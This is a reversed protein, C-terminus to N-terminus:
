QAQPQQTVEAAVSQLTKKSTPDLTLNRVAPVDLPSDRFITAYIVLTSLYSGNASPHKQDADYLRIEPHEKVCRAFAAGVPALLVKRQPDRAQLTAHLEGYNKEIEGFMQDPNLFTKPSPTDKFIPNGAELAWTQYLVIGAQPAKQAIRDYFAAGNAKFEAVDGAHTARASQDQLVVWNWPKATLAKDTAANKLHWGWDKGGTAVMLFSVPKHKAFAIAEVLKPINGVYTFSNGIFLIDEAKISLPAFFLLAIRAYRFFLAKM